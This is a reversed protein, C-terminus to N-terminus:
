GGAVPSVFVLEDGDQLTRSSKGASDQGASRAAGVTGVHEGNVAVMCSTPLEEGDPLADNLRQIAADLSAGDDLSLVDPLNAALHYGRGTVVIKINM